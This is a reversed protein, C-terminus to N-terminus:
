PAGPAEMTAHVQCCPWSAEPHPPPGWGPRVGQPAWLRCLQLDQPKTEPSAAGALTTPGTAAEDGDSPGLGRCGGRGGRAGRGKARVAPSRAPAHPTQLQEVLRAGLVHRDSLLQAAWGSQRPDLNMLM